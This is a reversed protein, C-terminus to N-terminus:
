VLAEMDDDDDDTDGMAPAVKTAPPLIRPAHSNGYLELWRMRDRVLFVDAVASASSNHKASGIFKVITPMIASVIEIAATHLPTIPVNTSVSADTCTVAAELLAAGHAAAPFHRAEAAHLDALADALTVDARHTVAAAITEPVTVIEDLVHCGNDPGSREVQSARHLLLATAFRDLVPAVTSLLYPGDPFADAASADEQQVPWVQRRRVSPELSRAEWLAHVVRALLRAAHITRLGCSFSRMAKQAAPNGLLDGADYLMTMAGRFGAEQRQPEAGINCHPCRSDFFAYALIVSDIIFGTMHAPDCAAAPFRTFAERRAYVHDEAQAAGVRPSRASVLIFLAQNSGPYGFDPAFSKANILRGGCWSARLHDISDMVALPRHGAIFLRSLCCKCSRSPHVPTRQQAAVAVVKAKASSAAAAAAAAATASADAKEVARELLVEEERERAAQKAARVAAAKAKAAKKEAHAAAEREAQAARRQKAKEKEAARKAAASTPQKAPKAAAATTNNTPRTNKPTSTPPDMKPSPTATGTDASDALVITPVYGETATAAAPTAVSKALLVCDSAHATDNHGEM